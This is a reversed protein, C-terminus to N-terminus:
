AEGQKARGMQILVAADYPSLEGYEYSDKTPIEHTGVAVYFALGPHYFLGAKTVEIKM